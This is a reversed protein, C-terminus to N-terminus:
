NVRAAEKENCVMVKKAAFYGSIAVALIGGGPNSWHGAQFLNYPLNEAIIDNRQYQGCRMGWGYAAGCYSGTYKEITSPAATEKILIESGALPFLKELFGVAEDQYSSRDFNAAGAERNAHEVVRFLELSIKGAPAAKPDYLSPASIFYCDKLGANVDYQQYHWGINKIVSDRPLTAGVYLAFLSQSPESRAINEELNCTLHKKGIMGYVTSRIDVSSVFHNASVSISRGNKEILVDTVGGDKVVLKKATAQLLLDGGKELFSAALKNSIASAGGIPYYAGGNIYSSMMAVMAAGSAAEPYVGLFGAQASLIAKLKDHTFYSDLMQQYSEDSGNNQPDSKRKLSDLITRFFDELRKEEPFRLKLANIYAKPTDPVDIVDDEFFFRDTPSMRAFTQSIGINKLIRTFVGKMDCGGIIHAGADFRFGKRTFSVCCGGPNHNKEIMLVKRGYKALYNGCILGSIGAGIIVVDYKSKITM